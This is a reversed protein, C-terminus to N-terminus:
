PEDMWDDDNLGKVCDNCANVDEPVYHGTRLIKLVGDAPAANCLGCWIIVPTGAPVPM